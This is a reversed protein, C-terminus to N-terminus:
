EISFIFTTSTTAFADRILIAVLLDMAVSTLSLAESRIASPYWVASRMARALPSLSTESTKTGFASVLSVGSQSFYKFLAIPKGKVM